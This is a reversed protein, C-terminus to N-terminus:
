TRAARRGFALGVIRMPSPPRRRKGVGRGGIRRAAVFLVLVIVILVLGGTWARDVQAKQPFFIANYVFLPLADQPGSFPNSNMTKAGGATLLLPATEGVARAVGLIVATILGSRATPLVVKRVMRWETGGLALSAERLGGPVLRFVVEATRAVTPLMLVSLSLAAAFGSKHNGLALIFVAYIFLGAVISPTASMADVVMRVPRALWGGVENLFVATMIGLPVSLLIALGVQEFSGVIAHEAGGETSKSLPGVFRQTQTFFHPRLAPLGRILTYGLVFLLVAGMMVGASALLVSMARDTAALRGLRERNALWYIVMFLVYVCMWYGLASQLPTLRYYLLWSLCLASLVSGGFLGFDEVGYDRPRIPTEDDDRILGRRRATAVV